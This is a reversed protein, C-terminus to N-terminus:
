SPLIFKAIKSFCRAIDGFPALYPLYVFEYASSRIPGVRRDDQNKLSWYNGGFWVIKAFMFERERESHQRGNTQRDDTQRYHEHVMSLRDFNEAINRRCKTCQGDASM